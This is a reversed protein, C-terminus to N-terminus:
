LSYICEIAREFVNDVGSKFDAINDNYLMEIDPTIGIGELCEGDLTFLALSSTYVSIHQNDFQGSSYVMDNVLPGQGGYSREGIVITKPFLAKLSLTTMESMSVSYLDILVVCVIDDRLPQVGSGSVLYPIFPTYDLRGMGKKYRTSGIKLSQGEPIYDSILYDLDSLAGGGNHRLDIIVGKTNESMVASKFGDFISELHDGDPVGSITKEINFESFYLYPVKDDYLYSMFYSFNGGGNDSRYNIFNSIKPERKGTAEMILESFRPNGEHYYDREKIKESSPSISREVEVTNDPSDDTPSSVTVSKLTLVYHHDILSSSLETFYQVATSDLEVSIGGLANFKPKYVDYVEDWDTQDIDWFVYNYNMADWYSEFVDTWYTAVPYVLKDSPHLVLPQKQRCSTVTIALLIGLIIYKKM